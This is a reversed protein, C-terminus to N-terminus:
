ARWRSAVAGNAPRDIRRSRRCDVAAGSATAAPGKLDSWHWGGEGLGPTRAGSERRHDAWAQLLDLRQAAATLRGPPRYASM